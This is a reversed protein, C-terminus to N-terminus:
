RTKAFLVHLLSCVKIESRWMMAEELLPTTTVIRPVSDLEMKMESHIKDPANTNSKIYENNSFIKLPPEKREGFRCM